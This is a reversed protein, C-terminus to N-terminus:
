NVSAAYRSGVPLEKGAVRVRRDGNTGLVAAIRKGNVLYRRHIRVFGRSRLKEEAAQMTMRLLHVREGVHVEVYNDAAEVWDVSEAIGSLDAVAPAPPRRVMAKRTLTILLITVGIPPLRRMMLLGLRDTVDGVCLNVLYEVAISCVAIGAILALLLAPRRTAEASRPQKSWEFLAFWPMVAVASWTLSGSWPGIDERGLLRQYGHCYVAGALWVFLGTGLLRAGQIPEFFLGNLSLRSARSAM